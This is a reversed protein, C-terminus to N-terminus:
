SGGTSEGGVLSVLDYRPRRLKLTLLICEYILLSGSDKVTPYGWEGVDSAGHVWITEKRVGYCVITM